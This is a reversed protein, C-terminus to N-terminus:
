YNLIIESFNGKLSNFPARHLHKLLSEEAWVGLAEMFEVVAMKSTYAANRGASDLFRM